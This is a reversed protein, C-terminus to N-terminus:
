TVYFFVFRLTELSLIFFFSFILFQKKFEIQFYLFLILCGLLLSGFVPRLFFVTIM